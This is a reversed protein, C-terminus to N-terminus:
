SQLKVLKRPPMEHHGMRDANLRELMARLRSLLVVEGKTEWSLLGADRPEGAIGANPPPGATQWGLEAFLGIAPPEVLQDETYTHPM